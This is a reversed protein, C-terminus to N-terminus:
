AELTDTFLSYLSGVFAVHRCVKEIYKVGVLVGDADEFESQNGFDANDEDLCTLCNVVVETYREGMQRPLRRKALAILYEKMVTPQEFEPSDSTIGLVPGPFSAMNDSRYSVFTEWLGIELLCIGLSYIDHQMFYDSEPNLGQRHPHRYINMRWDSDGARRTRGDVMRMKEFGFLFFAGFASENSRFGLITEPRINKHVFGLIHVYSVSKSLQKALQIRDTLTHDSQSVLYSRLSRPENGLNDPINFIFDFASINKSSFEMVQVVGRCQLISFTPPNVSSLKKALERVSRKTSDMDFVMDCPMREVVVWKNSRARPICKASTYAIECTRATELGSAPLFIPVIELPKERLADRLSYASTLTSVVSKSRNLEQDILPSSVKLILFWSPDFMKQWSALDEISEDLCQKVLIYKWRKVEIVHRSNEGNNPKKKFLVKLKSIIVSLRNILVKLIRTQIMQHEEDLKDWIQRIFDLQM